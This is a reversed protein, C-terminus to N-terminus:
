NLIVEATFVIPGTASNTQELGYTDNASSSGTAVAATCTVGTSTGPSYSIALGGGISTGNRTVVFTISGTVMGNSLLNICLTATKIIRNSPYEIATGTGLNTSGSTAFWGGSVGLTYSAYYALKDAVLLARTDLGTATATAGPRVLAVAYGTGADPIAGLLLRAPGGIEEIAVVTPNPYTGGLDGGAAGNPPLTTPYAPTAFTADERLFRVTGASSGPDPVTGRAHSAGSAVFDTVGIVPTAGGSSTIPATNGVSTVTGTGPAPLSSNTPIVPVYGQVTGAADLLPLNKTASANGSPTALVTADVGLGGHGILKQGPNTGAMGAALYAPIPRATHMIRYAENLSVSSAPLYYIAPLYIDFPTLVTWTWSLTTHGASGAPVPSSYTVWDWGGDGGFPPVLNFSESSFAGGFGAQLMLSGSNLGTTPANTNRMWALFVIRDGAASTPTTVSFTANGTGSILYAAGSGDLRDTNQGGTVTVGSTTWASPDPCLNTLGGPNQTVGFSGQVDRRKGTIRGDNGENGVVNQAELSLQVNEWRDRSGLGVVAYQGDGGAPQVGSLVTDIYTIQGEAISGNTPDGLQLGNYGAPDDANSCNNVYAILDGGCLTVCPMGPIGHLGLSAVEQIINVCIVPPALGDNKKMRVGGDSLRMNSLNVTGGGASGGSVFYAAKVDLNLMGEAHPLPYSDAVDWSTGVLFGGNWVGPYGDTSGRDVTPGSHYRPGFFTQGGCNTWQDLGIANAFREQLVYQGINSGTTGTGGMNTNTLANPQGGWPDLVTITTATTSVVQYMIPPWDNSTSAVEIYDCLSGGGGVGVMHGGITPGSVPGFAIVPWQVSVHVSSSFTEDTLGSAGSCVVVHASSVSTVVASINNGGHTAGAITITAGAQGTFDLETITFTKTSAVVGDSGSLAQGSINDFFTIDITGAETGTNPLNRNLYNGSHFNTTGNAVTIRNGGYIPALTALIRATVIGSGDRGMKTVVWPAPFAVTFTSTGTPGVGNRVASTIEALAITGDNNRRYDWGLRYPQHSNMFIDSATVPVDVGALWIGPDFRDTGQGWSLSVFNPGLQPSADLGYGRLNFAKGLLWGAPPSSWISYFGTLWMGQNASLGLGETGDSWASNSTVYLDGGALLAVYAAAATKKPFNLSGDNANDGNPSVYQVPYQFPPTPGPPVVIDAVRRRLQNILKYAERKGDKAENLEPLFNTPVPPLTAM